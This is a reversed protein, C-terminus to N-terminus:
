PAAYGGLRFDETYRRQLHAVTDADLAEDAARVAARANLRPLKRFPLRLHRTVTRWDDDLRECAGVFDPLRGAIRIQRHQSLWHRDAFADSGYPTNLWRCVEDFRMGTRLGFYPDIFWAHAEARSRALGHKDVYFSYARRCPHRVFAFSWYSKVEPRAALIEDLTRQRIVEADPDAARLAAIISRSAAKPNCLWVYRYRRSVVKEARLDPLRAATSAMPLATAYDRAEVAAALAPAIARHEPTAAAALRDVLRHLLGNAIAARIGHVPRGNWNAVRLLARLLRATDYGDPGAARGGSGTSTTHAGFDDM